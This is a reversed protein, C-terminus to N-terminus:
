AAGIVWGALVTRHVRRAKMMTRSAIPFHPAATRLSLSVTRPSSEL